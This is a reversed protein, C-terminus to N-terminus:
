QKAGQPGRSQHQYKGSYPWAPQQMREFAIQAIKAGREIYVKESSDNRIELTLYGCWGPKIRTNFVSIGKRAWSSRDEVKATLDLPMNFREITSALILEQPDLWRGPMYGFADFEVTVDYTDPGENDFNWPSIIGDHRLLIPNVIM